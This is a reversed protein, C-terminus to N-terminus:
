EFRLCAVNSRPIFYTAPHRETNSDSRVVIWDATATQLKGVVPLVSSGSQEGTAQRLYVSVQKDRPFADDAQRADDPQAPPGEGGVRAGAAGILLGSLAVIWVAYKRM